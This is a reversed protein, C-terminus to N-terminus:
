RTVLVYVNKEAEITVKAHALQSQRHDKTSTPLVIDAVVFYNGAPLDLFCFRGEWM